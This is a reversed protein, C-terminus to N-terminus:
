SKGRNRVAKRTEVLRLDLTEKPIHTIFPEILWALGTPINRALTVVENQVYVGRSSASLHATGLMLAAGSIAGVSFWLLHRRKCWPERVLPALCAGMALGDAVLWAFERFGKPLPNRFWLARLIPSVAVIGIAIFLLTRSKFTRM